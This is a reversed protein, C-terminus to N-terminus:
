PTDETNDWTLASSTQQGLELPSQAALSFDAPPLRGMHPHKYRLDDDDKDEEGPDSEDRELNEDAPEVYCDNLRVREPDPRLNARGCYRTSQEHDRKEAITDVEMRDKADNAKTPQGLLTTYLCTIEEAVIKPSVSDDDEACDPYLTRYADCDELTTDAIGTQGPIIPRM